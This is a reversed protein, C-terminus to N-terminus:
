KIHTYHKSDSLKETINSCFCYKIVGKPCNDICGGCLICESNEMSSKQVMENVNLSMVCNKNCLGCNTCKDKDALLKLSPLRLLAGLKTGIVMFPAMWCVYHCFARKGGVFSMIVVLGVVIYYISYAIPQAVSIGHHTAYFINIVKTKNSSIFIMIISIIWPTWIFFKIWNLKGGKAQKNSSVMCIEQLGGSPCIWGCFVRNFFLSIFFLLTFLIFSGTIIDKTMGEIILFPSFYYITIPFLLFSIIILAKRINQRKM